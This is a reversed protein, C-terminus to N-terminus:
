ALEQTVRYTTMVKSWSKGPNTTGLSKELLGARVMGSLTASAIGPVHAGFFWGEIGRLAIIKLAQEQKATMTKAGTDDANRM